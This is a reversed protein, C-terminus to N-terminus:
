SSDRNRQPAGYKPKRVLRLRSGVRGPPRRSARGLGVGGLQSACAHGAEHYASVRLKESM